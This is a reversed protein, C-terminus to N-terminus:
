VLNVFYPLKSLTFGKALPYFSDSLVQGLQLPPSSFILVGQSNQWKAGRDGTPLNDADARCVGDEAAGMLGRENSWSRAIPYPKPFRGTHSLETSGAHHPPVAGTSGLGWHLLATALCSVSLVAQLPKATM